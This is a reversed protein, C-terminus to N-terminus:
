LYKINRKLKSVLANKRKVLTTYKIGREEAIKKLTIGEDNFYSLIECREEYTLKDLAAKLMTKEEEYIIEEEIDTDDEFTDGLEIEEGIPTQMSIESNFRAKQRISYFYNFKVANKVYPLFSNNKNPDYNMVAKIVSVNGEQILDDMDMGSIFIGSATKIIFPIFRNLVEQMSARNGNQAELVLSELSKLAGVEKM